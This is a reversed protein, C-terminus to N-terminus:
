VESLLSVVSYQLSNWRFPEYYTTDNHPFNSSFSAFLTRITLTVNRCKDLLYLRCSQIVNANSESKVIVM